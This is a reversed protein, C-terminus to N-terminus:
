MCPAHPPPYWEPEDVASDDVAPGAVGAQETDVPAAPPELALHDYERGTHDSDVPHGPLLRINMDGVKRFAVAYRRL